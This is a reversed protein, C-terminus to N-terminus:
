GRSQKFTGACTGCVAALFRAFIGADADMKPTLSGTKTSALSAPTTPAGASSGAAARSHASRMWRAALVIARVLAIIHAVDGSALGVVVAPIAGGKLRDPGASLRQGVIRLLLRRRDRGEPADADV